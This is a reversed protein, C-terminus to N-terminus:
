GNEEAQDAAVLCVPDGPNVVPAARLMAVYGTSEARVEEITEGFLDRVIGVLDGREVRELLRVRQVFFGASNVSQTRDVDGDGILRYNPTEPVKNSQLIELYDLLNRIGEVYYPLDDRSVRGGNPSEVYIWPIGHTAAVSISRGPGLGHHGWIVPAGFALAAERSIRGCENDSADYGAMTPMLYAVGSSHLDVFLDAQPIVLDSLHHAIRQTVTGTKSGPFTRALNMSDIPSSRRSVRYAPLNAVPVAILRGSMAAPDIAEFVDHVAQVGELEDGHVCALVVLTNGPVKGNAVLLPIGIQEGNGAPLIKLFYSYKGPEAVDPFEFKDIEVTDVM